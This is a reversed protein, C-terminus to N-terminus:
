GLRKVLKVPDVKTYVNLLLTPDKHGSIAQVQEVGLGKEFLRSCAVRRLDHWRFDKIKAKRKATDWWSRLSDKTYPFVKGDFRRPLSKLIMIAKNSLPIVRDESNKTDNLHLLCKNFDIDQYKIKLLEGQRVATEISFQIMPKLYTNRKGHLNVLVSAELLRHEEDGKFVRNRPRSNPIRKVSKCPNSPFGIEWDHIATEIVQSLFSLDKNFTTNSVKQLRRDRFEVLHKSSLRLCNCDSITDEKIYRARSEEMLWGKKAKHKNEKIYRDILDSLTLRSAQTYDFIEGQDLKREITRSWKKAQEKTNFSKSVTRFGVRKVRALYTFGKKFKRRVIQAM